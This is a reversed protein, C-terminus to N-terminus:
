FFSPLSDTTKNQEKSIAGRKRASIITFLSFRLILVGGGARANRITIM